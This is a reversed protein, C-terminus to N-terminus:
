PVLCPGRYCNLHKAASLMVGELARQVGWVCMSCNLHKAASLM